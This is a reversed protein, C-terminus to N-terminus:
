GCTRIAVQINDAGGYGLYTALAGTLDFERGAVYPGRDVVTVDKSRGGYKITLKTGCPMTKNAVGMLETTLTSGCATTNGYFGPGYWSAGASRFSGACKKLIRDLERKRHNYKSICVPDSRFKMKRGTLKNRKVILLNYRHASVLKCVNEPVTVIVTVENTPQVEIIPSQEGSASTSVILIVAVAIIIVTSITIIKKM